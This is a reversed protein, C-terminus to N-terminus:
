SELVMQRWMEFFLLNRILLTTRQTPSAYHSELLLKVQPTDYYGTSRASDSLLVERTYAAIPGQFWEWIPVSFASKPWKIVEDPLIGIMAKKFTYKTTYTGDAERHVKYQSPIKACLEVLEHDLFPLKIELGHSMAMKNASMTMNEGAWTKTFVYQAQSLPDTTGSRRYLEQVLDCCHEDVDRLPPCYRRKEETDCVWTMVYHDEANITSIDRNGRRLWDRLKGPLLSGMLAPTSQRLWRPLRQFRRIRDFRKVLGDFRYGGTVDDGAEGGLVVEVNDHARGALIMRIVSAADAVPEDMYLIFRPLAESWDQFTFALEHHHTKFYKAVIRSRNLEGISKGERYGSSYTHIEQVGLHSLMAVISSSDMGGSLFAGMPRKGVVRRKVAAAFAERFREVHVKEDPNKSSEPPFELDWYELMTLQGQEYVAMYGAPLKQVADLVTRPAITHQFTLYESFGYPDIKRSVEPYQLIARLESAFVLTGEIHALYLPKEGLRDRVLLLRRNTSDWIAIAFAGKLLEPFRDGHEEYLHTLLETYLSTRFTHGKALLQERLESYNHIEGDLVAWRSDDENSMSLQEGSPNNIALCRMALGAGPELHYGEGDPGRHVMTDNILALLDRAVPRDAQYHIIGSIGCM